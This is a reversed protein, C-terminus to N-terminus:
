QALVLEIVHREGTGRTRLRENSTFLTVIGSTDVPPLFQDWRYITETAAGSDSMGLSVRRYGLITEYGDNELTFDEPDITFKFYVHKASTSSNDILFEQGAFTFDGLGAGVAEVLAVQEAKKMGVLGYYSSGMDLDPHAVTPDEDPPVLEDDWPLSVAPLGGSPFPGFNCRGLMIWYTGRNVDDNGSLDSTPFVTVLDKARINRGRDFYVGM